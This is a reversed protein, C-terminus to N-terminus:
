LDKIAPLKFHFHTTLPSKNLDTPSKPALLGLAEFVHQIIVELYAPQYGSALKVLIGLGEPYQQTPGIGVGLLGDAGEKAVVSIASDTVMSHSMLRTDLRGAGGILFAHEQMLNGIESPHGQALRQFLQAMGKASLAFNPMGCGDITELFSDPAQGTQTALFNKLQVYLEHQPTLYNETSLGMAKLTLLTGLHKGSCPHYLSKKEKGQSQLKLAETASLLYSAPCQLQAESFQGIDLIEKLLALQRHEGNHSAMMMAMHQPKLKPFAAKLLPLHCAFQWPKLLSRSWIPGKDNGVNVLTNKDGNMVVLIGSITIEPIGSREITFLPEWPCSM